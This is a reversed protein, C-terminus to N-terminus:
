APRASAITGRADFRQRLEELLHLAHRLCLRMAERSPEAGPPLTGEEVCRFCIGDM